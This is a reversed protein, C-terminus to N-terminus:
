KILIKNKKINNLKNYLFYKSIYIILDIFYINFKAILTLFNQQFGTHVLRFM